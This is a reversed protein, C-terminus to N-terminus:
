ALPRPAGTRHGVPFVVDETADPRSSRNAASARPAGVAQARSLSRVDPARCGCADTRSRSIRRNCAGVRGRTPVPTRSIPLRLRTGGLVWSLWLAAIIAITLHLRPDRYFKVPDYNAGLGQHVDDFLVAGRPGLNTAVINSLLRANDALGVARNTFIRAWGASSLAAM